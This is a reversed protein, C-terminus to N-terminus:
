TRSKETKRLHVQKYLFFGVLLSIFILVGFIILFILLTKSNLQAEILEKDKQAILKQAKEDRYRQELSNITRFKEEDYLSDKLGVISKNIDLSQKYLGMTEYIRALNRKNYLVLERFESEHAIKLANKCFTIAKDFEGRQLYIASINGLTNAEGWNNDRSKYNDLARFYYELAQGDKGMEEYSVGLNNLANDINGLDNYLKASDLTNKFMRLADEYNGQNNFINGRNQFVTNLQHGFLSENRLFQEAKINYEMAKEFDKMFRFNESINIYVTAINSLADISEYNNLAKLLHEIATAYEGKKQWIVGKLNYVNGKYKSSFLSDITEAEVKTLVIDCWEESNEFDNQFFYGIAKNYYGGLEGEPYNISSAILIISDALTIISQPGTNRAETCKQLLSDVQKKQVQYNESLPTNNTCGSIAMIAVFFVMLTKSFFSIKLVGRM